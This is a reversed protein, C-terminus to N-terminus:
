GSGKQEATGIGKVKLIWDVVNIVELLVWDAFWVTSRCWLDETGIGSSRHSLPLLWRNSMWFVWTWIRAQDWNWNKHLWHWSLKIKRLLNVCIGNFFRHNTNYHEVSKKHGYWHHCSYPQCIRKRHELKLKLRYLTYAAASSHPYGPLIQSRRM